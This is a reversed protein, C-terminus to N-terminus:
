FEISKYGNVFRVHQSIISARQGSKCYNENLWKVFGDTECVSCKKGNLKMWYAKEHANPLWDLFLQSLSEMRIAVHNPVCIIDVDDKDDEYLVNFYMMKMTVGRYTYSPVCPVTRHTIYNEQLM